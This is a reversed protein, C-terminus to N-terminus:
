RAASERSTAPRDPGAWRLRRRRNLTVTGVIVLPLAAALFILWHPVGALHEDDIPAVHREDLARRFNPGRLPMSPGRHWRVLDGVEREVRGRVLLVHGRSAHLATGGQGRYVMIVDHAFYSRVWLGAAAVALLLSVGLLLRHTRRM